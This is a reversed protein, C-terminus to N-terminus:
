SDIAQVKITFNLVDNEIEVHNENNKEQKSEHHHFRNTPYRISLYYIAQPSYVELQLAAPGIQKNGTNYNYHKYNNLIRKDNSTLITSIRFFDNLDLSLICVTGTLFPMVQGKLCRISQDISENNELNVGLNFLTDFM